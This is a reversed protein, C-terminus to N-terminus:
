TPRRMTALDVQKGYMGWDVEPTEQIGVYIPVPAEGPKANQSLIATAETIFVKRSEEDLGGRIAYTVMAIQPNSVAKGGSFVSDPQHESFFVWVGKRIKDSELLKECKMGLDTLSSAVKVRAEASFTDKTSHVFMKPM